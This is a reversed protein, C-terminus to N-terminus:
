DQLAKNHKAFIADLDRKRGVYREVDAIPFRGGWGFHHDTYRDLNHYGRWEVDCTTKNVKVVEYSAGGDAVGISFIAGKHVGAPLADSIKNAKESEADMWIDFENGFDLPINTLDKREFAHKALLIADLVVILGKSALDMCEDDENDPPYIVGYRQGLYPAVAKVLANGTKGKGLSSGKADRLDFRVQYLDKYLEEAKQLEPSKMM